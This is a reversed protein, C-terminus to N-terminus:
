LDLVSIIHPFEDILQNYQETNIQRVFLLEGKIKRTSSSHNTGQLGLYIEMDEKLKSLYKDTARINNSDLQLGLVIKTDEKNFVETKEKNINFNGQKIIQTAKRIFNNAIEKNSSFTIDDVYRSYKISKTKSYKYLDIDLENFILNSLIPSTPFGLPLSNNVTTLFTLRDSHKQNIGMDLYLSKVKQYHISPYFDKIDINILYDDGLHYHAKDAYFYGKQSFIYNPFKLDKLIRCLTKMKQLSYENPIIITRSKPTHIIRKQIGIKDIDISESFANIKLLTELPLKM